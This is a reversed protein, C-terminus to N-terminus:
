LLGLIFGRLVWLILWAVMPSFDIMGMPPLLRRVPEVIWNTLAMVPRMWPRYPSVGFWSAIVRVFIAAMVLNFTAAVLFQIWVRPGSYAVAQLTGSMGILWSTLSLLVLGGAIVIGLLWLPADQPSGGARMVRRELPLLVPDSARRVMRPWFGFPGIRRRRVAWHTGAVIAAYVLAVVVMARAALDLANLFV